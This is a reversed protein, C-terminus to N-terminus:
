PGLTVVCLVMAVFMISWSKAFNGKMGKKPFAEFLFVSCVQTKASFNSKSKAFNGKKGEKSM